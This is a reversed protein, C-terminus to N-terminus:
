KYRQALEQQKQKSYLTGTPKCASGTPKVVGNSKDDSATQKKEKMMMEYKTPNAVLVHRTKADSEVNDTVGAQLTHERAFRSLETLKLSEGTLHRHFMQTESDIEGVADSKYVRSKPDYNTDESYLDNLYAAKDERLRASARLRFNSSDDNDLLGTVDNKYLGLTALEIEEDTDLFDEGQLLGNPDPDKVSQRASTWQKLVRNFDAGDYGFWRDRQSDWDSNEEGRRLYAAKGVQKVATKGRRPVELCDRRDHGSEGCNECRQARRARRPGHIGKKTGVKVFEDRIGRGVKAEGNNEISLYNDRTNHSRHHALYDDQGADRGSENNNKGDEFFWPKEQIFRPIHVNAQKRSM